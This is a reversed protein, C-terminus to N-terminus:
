RIQLSWDSEGAIALIHQLWYISNFFFKDPYQNDFGNSNPITVRPGALALNKQVKIGAHNYVLDEIELTHDDQFGFSVINKSVKRGTLM